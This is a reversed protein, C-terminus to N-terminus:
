RGIPRVRHPSRFRRQYVLPRLVQSGNLQQKAMGLEFAGDSVEADLYVVRQLDGLLGLNLWQGVAARAFVTHGTEAMIDLSYQRGPLSPRRHQM